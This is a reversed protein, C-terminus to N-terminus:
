NTSQGGHGLSEWEAESFPADSGDPPTNEGSTPTGEPVGQGTGPADFDSANIKNSTPHSM